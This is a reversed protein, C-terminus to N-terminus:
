KKEDKVYKRLNKFIAKEKEPNGGKFGVAKLSVPLNQFIKLKMTKDSKLLQVKKPTDDDFGHKALIWGPSTSDVVFHQFQSIGKLPKFYTCLGNKWDYVNNGNVM